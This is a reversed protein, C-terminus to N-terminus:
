IGVGSTPLAEQCGPHEAPHNTGRCFMKSSRCAFSQSYEGLLLSSAAPTDMGESSGGGAWLSQWDFNGSSSSSSNSAGALQAKGNTRTSSSSAQATASPADLDDVEVKVPQFTLGADPVAVLCCAPPSLWPSHISGDVLWIRGLGRGDVLWSVSWGAM